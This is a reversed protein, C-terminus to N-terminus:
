WRGGRRCSGGFDALFSSGSFNSSAVGLVFGHVGNRLEKAVKAGMEWDLKKQGTYIVECGEVLRNVALEAERRRFKIREAEEILELGVEEDVEPCGNVVRAGLDGRVPHVVSCGESSCWTVRCGVEMLDGMAVIPAVAKTALLTGGPLQYFNAEGEASLVRRVPLGAVGRPGATRM